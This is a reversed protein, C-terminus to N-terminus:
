KYVAWLCMLNFTLFQCKGREWTQAEQYQGSLLFTSDLDVQELFTGDERAWSGRSEM